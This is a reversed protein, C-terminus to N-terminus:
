NNSIVIYNHSYNMKYLVDIPSRLNFKRTEPYTKNKCCTLKCRGSIANSQFSQPHFTAKPLKRSGQSDWNQEKKRRKMGPEMGLQGQPQFIQSWAVLPIDQTPVLPTSHLKAPGIAQKPHPKSLCPGAPLRRQYDDLRLGDDAPM